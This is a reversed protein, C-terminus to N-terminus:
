VPQMLRYLNEGKVNVKFDLDFAASLEVPIINQSRLVNIRLENHNVVLLVM